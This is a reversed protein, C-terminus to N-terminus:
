EAPTQVSYVKLYNIAPFEFEPMLEVKYNRNKMIELMQKQKESGDTVIFAGEELKMTKVSELTLKKMRDHAKHIDQNFSMKAYEPNGDQPSAWYVTKDKPLSQYARATMQIYSYSKHIQPMRVNLYWAGAAFEVAALFIILAGTIKSKFGLRYRLMRALAALGAGAIIYYFPMLIVVRTISVPFYPQFSGISLFLFIMSVLIFLCTKNKRINFLLTALGLLYLSGAAGQMIEGAHNRNQYYKNTQFPMIMVMFFNWTGQKIRGKLVDGHRKELEDQRLSSFVSHHTVATKVELIKPLMPTCIALFGISFFIGAIITDRRKKVPRFIAFLFLIPFLLVTPLHLYLGLGACLGSLAFMMRRGTKMGRVLFFLGLLMPFSSFNYNIGMHAFLRFFNSGLLCVAGFAAIHRDFLEKMLLYLAGVAALATLVTSLIFGSEYGFIRMVLGQMIGGFAPHRSYAGGDIDFFEKVRGLGLIKSFRYFARQDGVDWYKWNHLDFTYYVLGAIMLVLLIILDTRNIGTGSGMGRRRDLLFVGALVFIIGGSWLLVHYPRFNGAHNLIICVISLAFGSGILIFSFVRSSKESAGFVKGFLHGECRIDPMLSEYRKRSIVFAAPMMIIFGIVIYGSLNLYSFVDPLGVVDELLRKLNSMQRAAFSKDTESAELMLQPLFIVALVIVAASIEILGISSSKKYM